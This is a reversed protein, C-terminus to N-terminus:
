VTRGKEQESRLRLHRRTPVLNSNKPSSLFTLVTFQIESRIEKSHVNQFHLLKEITVVLLRKETSKTMFIWKDRSSPPKNIVTQRHNLMVGMVSFLRDFSRLSGFYSIWTSVLITGCLQYSDHLYITTDSM